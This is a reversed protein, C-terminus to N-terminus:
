CCEILRVFRHATPSWAIALWSDGGPSFSFVTVGASRIEEWMATARERSVSANRAVVLPIQDIMGPASAELEGIFAVASRFKGGGFFWAEFERLRRRHEETSVVRKGADFGVTRTFPGMSYSYLVGGNTRIEFTLELSDLSQGVGRVELVELLGDGTLDVSHSALVVTTDVPSAVLSGVVLLLGPLM